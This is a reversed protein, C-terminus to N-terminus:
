ELDDIRSDLKDLIRFLDRYEAVDLAQLLQAEWILAQPVIDHYLKRGAESLELYSVRNDKADKHKKILQKDELQKVGRSVKSKDMHTLEGILTSSLTPQEYLRAIIRWEPISLGFEDGYVQSYSDSLRKAINVLRFPLFQNLVLSPKSELLSEKASGPIPSEDNDRGLEAILKSKDTKENM